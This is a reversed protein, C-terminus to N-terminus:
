AGDKAAQQADWAVLKTDGRVYLPHRPHGDKTTGLCWLRAGADRFIAVVDRVRSPDANAGWACVIDGLCRAVSRLQFDNEPGIPESHRRLERPDTARLAYLNVVILGDCGWADAFGRCRRITPDDISADATSPNLMCFVAAGREPYDIGRRRQLEYRYTGCPSIIASM